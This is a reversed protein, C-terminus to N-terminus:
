MYEETGTSEAVHKAPKVAFPRTFPKQHALLGKLPGKQYM